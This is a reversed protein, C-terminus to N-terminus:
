KITTVYKKLEPKQKVLDRFIRNSIRYILSLGDSSLMRGNHEIKIILGAEELQQLITRIISGSGKAFHNKKSGNRKRGGFTTRLRSVGMPGHIFLKRMIAACRIYWWDPDRPPHDKHVGTKVFLAWTPPKIQQYNQKLWNSLEKIFRDAAVAKPTILERM